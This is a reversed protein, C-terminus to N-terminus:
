RLPPTWSFGLTLSAYNADKHSLADSVYGLSLGKWNLHLGIATEVPFVDVGMSFDQRIQWTGSAVPFLRMPTIRVAAEFSAAGSTYGLVAQGRPPLRQSFDRRGERGSFTPNFRVFGDADFERNDSQGSGATFPADQWEIRGLLDQARLKIYWRENLAYSLAVDLSAGRGQPRSVRRDLLKDETYFYDLALRYEFQTDSQAVASGSIRGDLLSNAQWLNLAPQIVFREGPGSFRRGLQLGHMAVHRVQLELGFEEGPRFPLENKVRHYLRTAGRSPEVQYIRQSIRAMEWAAWRMGLRHREYLFGDSGGSLPAQWDKAFHYIPVPEAYGWVDVDAYLTPGAGATFSAAALLCVCYGLNTM